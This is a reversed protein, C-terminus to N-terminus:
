NSSDLETHWVMVTSAVLEPGRRDAFVALLTEPKLEVDKDVTTGADIGITQGLLTFKRRASDVATVAGYM